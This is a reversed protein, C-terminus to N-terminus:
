GPPVGSPLMPPIGPAPSGSTATPDGSGNTQKAEDSLEPDGCAAALLVISALIVRVSFSGGRSHAM